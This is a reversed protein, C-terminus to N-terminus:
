KGWIKFADAFTKIKADRLTYIMRILTVPRENYLKALTRVHADLETSAPRYSFRREDDSREVFGRQEFMDLDKAADAETVSAAPELKAAVDHATWGREPQRYLVLLLEAANVTTISRQLFDCFEDTFDADDTADTV